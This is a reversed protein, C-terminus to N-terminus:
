ATISGDPKMAAFARNNSYIKTYGNDVPAWSWGQSSLGWTVISGDSKMAAFAFVTSYINTYGNDIPATWGYSANGWATISGDSKLAAFAQNNAQINSNYLGLTDNISRSYDVGNSICIPSSWSAAAVTKLWLQPLGGVESNTALAIFNSVSSTNTLDVALIDDIGTAVSGSYANQLNTMFALQSAANSLNDLSWSYVVIDNANNPYSFGSISTTDFISWSYSSPLNTTGDYSFTRNAAITLVTSDLIDSAIISPVALIYDLGGARVSLFQRNYPWRIYSYWVQNSANAQPILVNLSLNSNGELVAGLQYENSTATRSYAYSSGTLPDKPIKNIQRITALNGTWFEWQYWATAGSFTINNSNDPIPYNWERTVYLKFARNIANIDSVRVSDRSDQSFGQFSVFAITWLIALITIVVILEVLTFAQKPM